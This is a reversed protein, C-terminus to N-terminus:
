SVILYCAANAFTVLTTGVMHHLTHPLYGPFELRKAAKMGRRHFLDSTNSVLHQFSSCPRASNQWALRQKGLVRRFGTVTDSCLSSKMSRAWDIVSKSSSM